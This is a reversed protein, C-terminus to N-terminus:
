RYFVGRITRNVESVSRVTRLVPSASRITRTVYSVFRWTDPTAPLAATNYMGSLGIMHRQDQIATLNSVGTPLLRGFPLGLCMMSARRNRTSLAM